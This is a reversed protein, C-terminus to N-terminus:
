TASKIEVSPEESKEEQVPKEEKGLKQSVENIKKELEDLRLGQVEPNKKLDEQRLKESIESMKASMEDVAPQGIHLDKARQIFDQHVQENEPSMPYKKANLLSDFFQAWEDFLKKEDSARKQMVDMQQQMATLSELNGTIKPINLKQAQKIFEQYIAKNEDSLPDNRAQLVQDLFQSWTGFFNNINLKQVDDIIVAHCLSVCLMGFLLMLKNGSM